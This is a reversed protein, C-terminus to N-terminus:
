VFGGPFGLASWPMWSYPGVNAGDVSTGRVALFDPTHDTTTTGEVGDSIRAQKVLGTAIAVQEKLVQANRAIPNVLWAGLTAVVALLFHSDWLDPDDIQATYVLEAYELNTLIVRQVLSLDAVATVTRALTGNTVQGVDGATIAFETTGALAVNITTAAVASVIGSATVSSSIVQTVTDGVEYSNAGVTLQQGTVADTAVAFPYGPNAWVYPTSLAGAPFIPDVGPAEPPNPVLYRAALCDSPYAYEYLYPIPPIEYEDGSPNEPTGAAAKLVTLGAQKRLCNWHAARSVANVQPQYYRAVVAANPSPLPPDLSVVSFRAGIQDLSMNAVTVADM